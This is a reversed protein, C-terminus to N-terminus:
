DAISQYTLVRFLNGYAFNPPLINLMLVGVLKEKPDIWFATGAAGGWSYTGKSGLAGM